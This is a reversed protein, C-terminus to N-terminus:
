LPLVRLIAARLAAANSSVESLPGGSGVLPRGTDDRIVCGYGARDGEEVRLGISRANAAYNAPSAM